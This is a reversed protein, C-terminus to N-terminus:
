LPHAETDYKAIITVNDGKKVYVAKTCDGMKSITKWNAKTGAVAYATAYEADSVCTSKGNVLVEMGSGGDHMHGRATILTGDNTIVHGTGDLQGKGKRM